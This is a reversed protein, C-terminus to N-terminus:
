KPRNRRFRRFDDGDFTDADLTDGDATFTQTSDVTDDPHPPRNSTEEDLLARLRLYETEQIEGRALRERLIDLPSQRRTHRLLRLGIVVSAAFLVAVLVFNLIQFTLFGVNVGSADM